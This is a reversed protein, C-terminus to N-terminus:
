GIVTNLYRNVKVNSDLIERAQANGAYMIEFTSQSKINNEGDMVEIYGASADKKIFEQYNDAREIYVKTYYRRHSASGSFLRLEDGKQCEFAEFTDTTMTVSRIQEGARWLTCYVSISKSLNYYVYYTGAEEATFSWGYRTAGASNLVEGYEDPNM